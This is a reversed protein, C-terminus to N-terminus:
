LVVETNTLFESLLYYTVVPVVDKGSVPCLMMNIHWHVQYKKAVQQELSQLICCVMVQVICCLM